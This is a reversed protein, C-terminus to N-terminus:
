IQATRRHAQSQVGNSEGKRLASQEGPRPFNLRAYSGYARRAADDYALAAAEQTPFLGLYQRTGHGDGCRAAWGTQLWGVGKFASRGSKAHTNGASQFGTASRLNSRRNDLGNGNVHDVFEAPLIMRHMRVTLPGPRAGRRTAYWTRKGPVAHWRYSLIEEADVADVIAVMGRTLPVEVPDTM